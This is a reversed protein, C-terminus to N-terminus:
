QHTEFSLYHEKM